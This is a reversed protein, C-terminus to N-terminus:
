WQVVTLRDRSSRPPETSVAVLQVATHGRIAGSAATAYAAKAARESAHGKGWLRWTVGKDDSVEIRWTVM